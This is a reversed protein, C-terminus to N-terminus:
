RRINIKGSAAILSGTPVAGDLLMSGVIVYRNKNATFAYLDTFKQIRSFLINGMKAVGGGIVIRTVGTIALVNVLGISFTKAIRDLEENCFLDGYRVGEALMRCNIRGNMASLFVSKSAYDNSNLRNEISKGSCILELRTMEGPKGSTLDPVLTNGLYAAGYGSGDFYNGDFYLGGGIGTGINTYFLRDSGKGAGCFLEGIGGAVTDNIVTTKIKFKDEFWSKLEFNEWGDIQLSCLVKGTATELPGGFGVGIGDIKESELIVKIKDEIWLLIDKATFGPTLVVCESSIIKGDATGIAIQQKTGGIEVAIYKNM